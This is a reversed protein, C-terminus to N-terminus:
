EVERPATYGTKAIVVYKMPKGKEDTIKLPEGTPAVLEVKIKRFKGDRATNTPSYTLMYTSRLAENLSRFINPYEGLFRPFWAQGGTEKAFTRMQNDAQLFDLQAMPGMAGHADLYERMSQLTGLVYVPVGATQLKRRTEDLTIKSFTDMGSGIYFIAKRGEIESMRDAIETLADFVNSESFGPIRLRALAERTDMRNTSFDSLITTRLDFAVVAVQDEPKLTQLFGYTANLTEIWGSSWYRQFRGSFEIVMALTIPTDGTASATVKQPVGDESVAFNGAPIGPIFRGRNDLVAVDVNVTLVDSRFTPAGPGPEQKDGKKQLKSPIKPQQTDEAPTADKKKPKAVTDGSEREPGEQAMLPSPFATLFVGAAAFAALGLRFTARSAGVARPHNPYFRKLM